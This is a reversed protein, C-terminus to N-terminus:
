APTVSEAIKILLPDTVAIIAAGSLIEADTVFAGPELGASTAADITGRWFPAKGGSAPVFAIDFVAAAPSSAPPPANNEARKLRMQTVLSAPDFSGQDNIVLDVIIPEGRQFLFTTQIM